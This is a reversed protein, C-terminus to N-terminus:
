GERRSAQRCLHLEARLMVHLPVTTSAWTMVGAPTCSLLDVAWSTRAGRDASASRGTRRRLVGRVHSM